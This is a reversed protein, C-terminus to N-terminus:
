CKSNSNTADDRDSSLFTVPKTACSSQFFVSDFGVRLRVMSITNGDAGSGNLPSSKFPSKTPPLGVRDLADDVVADAEDRNTLDTKCVPCSSSRSFWKRLCSDCFAHKCRRIRIVDIQRGPGENLCSLCIPCLEDDALASLAEPDVYSVRADIQAASLRAPRHRDAM